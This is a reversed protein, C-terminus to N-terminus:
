LGFVWILLIGLWFVPISIGFNALSTVMADMPGGRRLASILGATIGLLGSVIVALIGLHAIYRRDFTVLGFGANGIVYLVTEPAHHEEGLHSVVVPNHRARRM